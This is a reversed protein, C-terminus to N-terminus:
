QDYIRWYKVFTGVERMVDHKVYFPISKVERWIRSLIALLILPPAIIVLGVRILWCTIHAKITKM